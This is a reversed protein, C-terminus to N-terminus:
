LQKLQMTGSGCFPDWLLVDERPRSTMVLAAALTERLPAEGSIPRYGRKHLAVGTTDIMVSVIDKFIFFGIQYKIGTEQFWNIGYKSSLRDVIAKKIIKQCDPLSFLQSKVSHGKVPFCDDKGIYCEWPLAKTREFLQEFTTASFHGIRVYVREATRLCINARAIDIESGEFIVRGDMTELRKLGLSDIEAGLLKELGFLCTAVLEFKAM